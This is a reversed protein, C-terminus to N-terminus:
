GPVMEVWCWLCWFASRMSLDVSVQGQKFTHSHPKRVYSIVNFYYYYKFLGSCLLLREIIEILYNVHCIFEVAQGITDFNYPSFHSGMSLRMDFYYQGNWKMGLLHWDSPHVPAICFTAEIDVKSLLCGPGLQKIHHIVRGITVYQLSYTDKDIFDNVSEGPPYSLHLHIAM